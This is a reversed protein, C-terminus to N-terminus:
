IAVLPVPVARLAKAKIHEAWHKTGLPVQCGELLCLGFARALGTLDEFHLIAQHRRCCMEEFM